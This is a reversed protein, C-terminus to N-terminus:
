AYRQREAPSLWPWRILSYIREESTGDELQEGSERDFLGNQSLAMNLSKARARQRMNLQGPGTVFMLAAARASPSVAWCDLHLVGDAVEIDGNAIRNGRRQWVVWEPLVVGPNLLDPALTGSENVILIDIDGIIPAGRRWSGGFVFDLGPNASLLEVTMKEVYPAVVARPRRKKESRWGRESKM